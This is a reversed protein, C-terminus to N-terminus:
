YNCNNLNRFIGSIGVDTYILSNVQRNKLVFRGRAFLVEKEVDKQKTSKNGQSIRRSKTQIVKKGRMYAM